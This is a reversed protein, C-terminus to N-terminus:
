KADNLADELPYGTAELHEVAADVIWRKALDVAERFPNARGFGGVRNLHVWIAAWYGFMQFKYGALSKWAKHEAEDMEAEIRDKVSKEGQVYGWREISILDDRSLTQGREASM